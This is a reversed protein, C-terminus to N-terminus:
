QRIIGVSKQQKIPPIIKRDSAEIKHKFLVDRIQEVASLLEATKKPVVKLGKDTVNALSIDGLDGVITTDDLTIRNEPHKKNHQEIVPILTKLSEVDITAGKFSTPGKFEVNKFSCNSITSNEFSVKNFHAKSFNFGDIIFNDLKQDQKFHLGHMDKNVLSYKTTSNNLSDARNELIAGLDQKNQVSFDANTSVDHLINDIDKGVRRRRDSDILLKEQIKFKMIDLTSTAALKLVEKDFLIGLAKPILKGYRKTAFLEAAETLQPLKKSALKILDEGKLGLNKGIKTQNLFQDVVNGLKESHQELLKPLEDDIVAKVEPNKNKFEVISNVIKLTLKEQTEKSSAQMFDQVQTIISQLGEKDKIAGSALKSVLPLMPGVLDITTSATEKVLSPPIGLEELAKAVPEQTIVEDVLKTINEKNDKIFKPLDEGIIPAVVKDVITGANKLMESISKQQKKVAEEAQQPSLKGSILDNSLQQFEMFSTYTEAISESNALVKSTADAVLPLASQVINFATPIVKEVFETTIGFPELLEATGEQSILNKSIVKLAEQNTQIFRSLEEGLLPKIDEFVRSIGSAMAASIELQKKAILEREESSLSDSALQVGLKQLESFNAYVKILEPSNALVKSAMETLLPLTNVILDESVGLTTLQQKLGPINEIANHIIIPLGKVFQENKFLNALDKSLVSTINESGLISISAAILSDLAKARDAQQEETPEKPADLIINLNSYIENIQEASTNTLIAEVLSLGTSLVQEYFEPTINQLLLAPPPAIIKIIEDRDLSQDCSFAVVAASERMETFIAPLQSALAKAITAKHNGLISPDGLILDLTQKKLLIDPLAKLLDLKKESSEKDLEAIEELTTAVKIRRVADDLIIPQLLKFIKGIDEKNSPISGVVGLVKPIVDDVLERSLHYKAAIKQLDENSELNLNVIKALTSGEQVLFTSISSDVLIKTVDITDLLKKLIIAKEAEDTTKTLEIALNVLEIFKEPNSLLEKIPQSIIPLLKANIYEEGIDLKKLAQIATAVRAKLKLAVLSDIEAQLTAISESRAQSFEKDNLIKLADLEAQKQPLADLENKKAQLEKNIADIKGLETLIVPVMSPIIKDFLMGFQPQHDAFFAITDRDQLLRLFFPPKQPDLELEGSLIRNFKDLEDQFFEASTAADVVTGLNSVAFGIGKTVAKFTSIGTEKANNQPLLSGLLTHLDKQSNLLGHMISYLKKKESLYVKEQRAEKEKELKEYALKEKQLKALESTWQELRVKSQKDQNPSKKAALVSESLEEIKKDVGELRSELSSKLKFQKENLSAIKLTMNTKKTSLAKISKGQKQLETIQDANKKLEKRLKELNKDLNDFEKQIESLTPM